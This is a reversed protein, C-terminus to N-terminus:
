RSRFSGDTICDHVKAEAGDPDTPVRCSVLDFGAARIEAESSEIREVLTAQDLGLNRGFEVAAPSTRQQESCASSM